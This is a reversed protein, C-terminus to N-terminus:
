LGAEPVVVLRWGDPDEFTVAGVTTGYPNEAEVPSYGAAGFREVIPVLASPTESESSRFIRDPLRAPTQSSPAPM